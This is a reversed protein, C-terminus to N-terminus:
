FSVRMGLNISNRQYAGLSSAQEIVQVQTLLGVPLTSTQRFFGYSASFSFRDDFRYNAGVQLQFRLNQRKITFQTISDANSYHDYGASASVYASISAGYRKNFGGNITHGVYAYDSGYEHNNQKWILSYGYNMSRGDAERIFATLGASLTDADFIPNTESVITYYSFNAQYVTKDDHRRIANLMLTNTSTVSNDSRLVGYQNNRQIGVRYTYKDRDYSLSPYYSLNLYDYQGVHYIQYSPSFVFNFKLGKRIKYNYDVRLSTDSRYDFQKNDDNLRANDDLGLSYGISFGLGNIQRQIVDVRKEAMKKTAENANMDLLLGRYYVLAKEEEGLREYLRAVNVKANVNDPRLDLVKQYWSLAEELRGELTNLRALGWLTQISDPSVALVDLFAQEAAEFNKQELYLQAQVTWLRQRISVIREEEDLLSLAIAYHEAAKLFEEKEEMLAGLRIRADIHGSDLAVVKEFVEIADDTKRERLLLGGLEYLAGIDGPADSLVSQIKAEEHNFERILALRDAGIRQELTTLIAVARARHGGALDNAVIYDLQEVGEPVKAIDLYVTALRIRAEFEGPKVQIVREFAKAAEELEDNEIYILGLNMNAVVNWPDLELVAEFEQRSLLVDNQNLLRLGVLVHYKITAAKTIAPNLKLGLAQKFLKEAAENRGTAEYVNALYFHAKGSNPLAAVLGQFAKEALAYRENEAAAAGVKYLVAPETGYDALLQEGVEEIAEADRNRQAKKLLLLKLERDAKTYVKSGNPSQSRLMRYQAIAKDDAGSERLARAYAERISINKPVIELSQELLPIGKGYENKMFHIIAMNYLARYNKPDIALIQQLIRFASGFDKAAMAKNRQVLLRQVAAEREADSMVASGAATQAQAVALLLCSLLLVLAIHRCCRSLM